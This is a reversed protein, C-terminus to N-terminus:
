FGEFQETPLTQRVLYFNRDVSESIDDSRYGQQPFSESERAASATSEDTFPFVSVKDTEEQGVTVGVVAGFLDEALENEEPDNTLLEPGYTFSVFTSGAIYDYIRAIETDIEHVREARGAGADIFTETIQTGENEVTQPVYLVASEGVALTSGPRGDSSEIRFLTYGEYESQDDWNAGDANAYADAIRDREFEGLYVNTSGITSFDPERLPSQIRLIEEVPGEQILPLADRRPVDRTAEGSLSDEVARMREGDIYVFALKDVSGNSTTAPEPIWKTYPQEGVDFEAQETDDDESDNADDSEDESGDASDTQNDTDSESDAPSGDDSGESCGALPLALSAVATKLLTRRRQEDM